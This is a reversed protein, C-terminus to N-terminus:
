VKDYKEMAAELLQVAIATARAKRGKHDVTIMYRQNGINTAQFWAGDANIYWGSYSAYAWICEIHIALCLNTVQPDDVGLYSFIRVTSRRLPLLETITARKELSNM